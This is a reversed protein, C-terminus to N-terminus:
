RAAAFRVRRSGGSFFFPGSGNSAAGTPHEILTTDRSSEIWVTDAIAAQAAAFSLLTAAACQRIGANMGPGRRVTM